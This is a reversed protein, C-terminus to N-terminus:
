NHAEKTQTQASPSQWQLDEESAALEGDILRKRSFGARLWYWWSPCAGEGHFKCLRTGPRKLDLVRLFLFGRREGLM